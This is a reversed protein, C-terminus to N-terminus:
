RAPDKPTSGPKLKSRMLPVPAIRRAKEKEPLTYHTLQMGHVLEDGHDIILRIEDDRDGEM